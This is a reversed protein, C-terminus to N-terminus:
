DYKATSVGSARDYSLTIKRLDCLNLRQWFARSSDDDFVVRLDQICDTRSAPFVLHRAEGRGLVPAKLVNPGWVGIDPPSVAVERIPYATANILEFRTEQAAATGSALILVVAATSRLM